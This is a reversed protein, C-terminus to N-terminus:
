KPISRTAVFKEITEFSTRAFAPLVAAIKRNDIRPTQYRGTGFQAKKGLKQALQALTVCDSSAANYIGTLEKQLALKIFEELDSHLVCNFLSDGSLDLKPSDEDILRILNSPRATAGLLTVPRLILHSTCHRIVVAESMLKAMGYAGGIVADANIKADERHHTGPADDYVSISSLYIFRRHRLRTLRQTLFLNDELYSYLRESAATRSSSAACHIIVDAGDKESRALVEESNERTMGTGGLREHLHKGLGSAVGTILLKM